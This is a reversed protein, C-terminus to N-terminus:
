SKKIIRELTKLVKFSVSNLMRRSWILPDNFGKIKVTEPSNPPDKLNVIHEKLDSSVKEGFEKFGTHEVLTGCLIQYGFDGMMDGYKEKNKAIISRIMPRSFENYAAVQAVPLPKDSSNPPTNAPYDQSDEFWGVFTSIKKLDKGKKRFKAYKPDTDKVIKPKTMKIPM